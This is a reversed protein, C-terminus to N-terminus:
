SLVNNINVNIDKESTSQLFLMIRTSDLTQMTCM